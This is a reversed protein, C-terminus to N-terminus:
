MAPRAAPRSTFLASVLQVIYRFPQMNTPLNLSSLSLTIQRRPRPPPPAEYGPTGPALQTYGEDGYELLVGRGDIFRVNPSDLVVRPDNMDFRLYIM